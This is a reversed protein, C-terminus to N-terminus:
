NISKKYVNFLMAIPKKKLAEEEHRKENYKKIVDLVTTGGTIGAALALPPYLSSALGLTGSVVLTPVDIKYISRYKKDLEAVKASHKKFGEDLSYKVQLTVEAFDNENASQINGTNNSLLDRMDQLEGRQRLEKIKNLPINGLWRLEEDQLANLIMTNKSLFEKGKVSEPLRSDRLLLQINDWVGNFDTVFNETFRGNIMLDFAGMGFRGRLIAFIVGSLSYERDYKDEYYEKASKCQAVDMIEGLPTVISLKSKSTVTLFEKFSHFRELYDLLEDKSSLEEFFIQSAYFPVINEEIFQQTTELTKQKQLTLMISPTLYCIPPNNDSAFLEEILMVQCAYVALIPFARKEGTGRLKWTQLESMIPDNVLTTDAYLASKKLIDLTQNNDNLYMYANGLYASRVGGLRKIGEVQSDWNLSYLEEYLSDMISEIIKPNYLESVANVSEQLTRVNKKKSYEM